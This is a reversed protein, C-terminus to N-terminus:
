KLVNQAACDGTGRIFDNITLFEGNLVQENTLRLTRIGRAQWFREDRRRDKASDHYHGDIEIILKYEPLYFDAIRYYPTYFGQQFRYTLGLTALHRLFCHEAPTAQKKLQAKHIAHRAAFPLQSFPVGKVLAM